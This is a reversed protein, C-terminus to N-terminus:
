RGGTSDSGTQLLAQARSIAEPTGVVVATDGAQLRFDPGPVPIIQGGRVVAVIVVETRQRLGTDEVGCLTCVWASTIPLWDITLDGVAQRLNALSETVQTKGLSAGLLEALSRRDEEELRVVAGCADPDDSDFLLLERRGTRYTIMGLRDGAKTVFDHRVGVGPLRTEQIETM